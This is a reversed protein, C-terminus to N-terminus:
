VPPFMTGEGSAPGRRTNYAIEKLFGVQRNGIEELVNRSSGLFNGVRTLADGGRDQTLKVKKAKTDDTTEPDFTPKVPNKLREAAAALQEKIKELGTMWENFKALGADKAAAVAEGEMAGTNMRKRDFEAIEEKSWPRDGHAVVMDHIQGEPSKKVYAKAAAWTSSVGSVMKYLLEALRLLAPGLNVAIISALLSFQDGLIDLKVATDTDMITGLKRMRAELEEFDTQLVPLLQGFSRGLIDRLIPGLEEQSMANARNRMPGMFLDASTQSRLDAASIGLQAFRGLLKAGEKGGGLAKERAIDLKEFASTLVGLDTSSEKAAQRLVQLQEVGVGLRQSTTVLEEALDMTKRVAAQVGYLGFATAVFSKVSSGLRKLGSEFGSGDLGVEGILKLGM